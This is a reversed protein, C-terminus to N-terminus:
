MLRKQKDDDDVDFLISDDIFERKLLNPRFNSSFLVNRM